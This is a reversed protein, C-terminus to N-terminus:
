SQKDQILKQIRLLSQRMEEDELGELDRRVEAQDIEGGPGAAGRRDRGAPALPKLPELEQRLALPEFREAVSLHLRGLPWPFLAQIKSLLRTRHFSLEQVWAYSSVEVHLTGEHWSKPRTRRAMQDGVLTPWAAELLELNVVDATGQQASKELITRILQDLM